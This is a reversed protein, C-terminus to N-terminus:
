AAGSGWGADVDGAHMRALVAHVAAEDLPVPNNPRPYERVAGAAIAELAGLEIGASALSDPLGLRRCLSMVSEAASRLSSTREGTLAQSIHQELEPPIARNYALCYPLAIACSTGHSMPRDRAIAYALSHGLVVGANLALGALHAAYLVRGRAAGPRPTAAEELSDRLIELAQTAVALTLPNRTTSLMSEVAHAMADMGTAAIVAPPLDDVFAEDLVAILPVFQSCSVARKSGDVTVMAIRTAESGTGTTTPVLVLPAVVCAPSVVGLWDRVTGENTALLAALKAVDLASGGGVGIVAVSHASRAMGAAANAVAEDPEGAIGDFVDVSFGATTLTSALPGLLGHAAVLRDAVVLVRGPAIGAALLETGVGRSCDRGALVQRPALYGTASWAPLQTV